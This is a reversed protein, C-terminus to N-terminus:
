NKKKNGDKYSRTKRSSLVDLAFIHLNKYDRGYSVRVTPVASYHSHFRFVYTNQISAM